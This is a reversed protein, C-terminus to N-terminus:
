PQRILITVDNPYDRAIGFEKWTPNAKLFETRTVLLNWPVTKAAVHDGHYMIWDRSFFVIAQNPCLHEVERAFVGGTFFDGHLRPPCYSYTVNSWLITLEDRSKGTLAAYEAIALDAQTEFARTEVLELLKQQLSIEASWAVSLVAFITLAKMLLSNFTRNYESLSTTVLFLVPLIAAVQLLFREGPHKLVFIMSLVIQMLLAIALAQRGAEEPAFRHRDYLFYIIIFTVVLISLFLIPNTKVIVLLNSLLLHFSTIGEPGNGYPLQHNILGQLFGFFYPMRQLAPLVSLLFGLISSALVLGSTILIKRWSINQMRYFLVIFVLTGLLWPVFNIMTALMLGLLLGLGVAMKKSILRSAHAIRFLFLLYLTGLPFNLATHSWITLTTFSYIHLGYFILALSLAVPVNPQASFNVVTQFFYIACGISLLTVFAHALTLFLVPNQLHYHIFDASTNFFPYTIGLILSGVIEVPTGPHDNYFYPIGKFVALSNMFYAMEPDYDRYYPTGGKLLLDSYIWYGALLFVIISIGLIEQKFSLVRPTMKKGQIDIM